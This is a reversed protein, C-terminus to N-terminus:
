SAEQRQVSGAGDCTPCPIEPGYPRAPDRVWGYKDCQGCRETTQEHIRLAAGRLLQPLEHSRYAADLRKVIDDADCGAEDALARYALKVNDLYHSEGVFGPDKDDCAMWIQRLIVKPHAWESTEFFDAARCLGAPLDHAHTM